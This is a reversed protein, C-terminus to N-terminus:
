SIKNLFVGFTYSQIIINNGQGNKRICVDFFMPNGDVFFIILNFENNIIGLSYLPKFEYVTDYVKPVMDLCKLHSISDYLILKLFRVNNM